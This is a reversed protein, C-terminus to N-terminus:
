NNMDFGRSCVGAKVGEGFQHEELKPLTPTPSITKADWWIIEFDMLCEAGYREFFKFFDHANEFGDEKAIQAVKQKSFAQSTLEKTMMKSFPWLVIPEVKVCRAEAFQRCEKTRMGTFMKIVDGVKTPHKRRRRITHPKKGELILPVFRTQFNYAPM